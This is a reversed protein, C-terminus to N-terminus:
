ALRYAKRNGVKPVKVTEATIVGAEVMRNAVAILKPSSVGLEQALVTGLILGRGTLNKVIGDEIPKDADHSAVRKAKAKANKEDIHALYKNALEVMEPDTTLKLVNQFFQKQTM